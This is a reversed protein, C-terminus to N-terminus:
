TGYMSLLIAPPARIIHLWSISLSHHATFLVVKFFPSRSMRCIASRGRLGSSMYGNVPLGPNENNFGKLEQVLPAGSTRYYGTNGAEAKNGLFLQSRLSSPQSDRLYRSSMYQKALDAPSSVGITPVQL